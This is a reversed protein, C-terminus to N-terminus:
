DKDHENIYNLLDNLVELAQEKKDLNIAMKAFEVFVRLVTVNM